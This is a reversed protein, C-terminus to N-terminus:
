RNEKVFRVVEQMLTEFWPNFLWFTHPTEEQKVIRAQIDYGTLKAASEHVGASFRTQASLCFLFRASGSNLHNIPSAQQAKQHWTLSDDLASVGFWLSSSSPKGPRDVGEGSDPHVFALVGDINVVKTIRDSYRRIERSQFAPYHGNISGILSVMQGGASSGLLTIDASNFDYRHAQARVWRIATKIDQIAAPYHAEGSLRYNICVSAVGHRALYAAMAGDLQKDGSQWGGGHVLIVVPLLGQKHRPLYLDASQSYSNADTYYQNRM